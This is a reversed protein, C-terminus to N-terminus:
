PCSILKDLMAPNEESRPALLRSFISANSSTNV